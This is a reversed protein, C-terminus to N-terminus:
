ETHPTMKQPFDQLRQLFFADNEALCDPENAPFRPIRVVLGKTRYVSVDVGRSPM